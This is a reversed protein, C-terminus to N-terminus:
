MSKGDFVGREKRCELLIRLRDSRFGSPSGDVQHSAQRLRRGSVDRYCGSANWGPDEITYGGILAATEYIMM